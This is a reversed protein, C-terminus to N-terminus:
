RCNFVQRTPTSNYQNCLKKCGAATTEWRDKAKAEPWTQYQMNYPEDIGGCSLPCVHDVIMGPKFGYQKKFLYVQNQDRCNAQAQTQALLLFLLVLRGM